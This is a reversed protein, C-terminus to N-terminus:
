GVPQSRRTTFRVVLASIVAIAAATGAAVAAPISELGEGGSRAIAIWALGWAMAGAVALRGRGVIAVFVAVAAVVALVIVAWVDAGLDFPDIDDYALAAATNAVTAVSVWGLYVFMTGDVVVAEIRSAPLDRTFILFVRVLVVLLAVIVVVSLWVQDIQIASIWAANLLLSAVIWWGAARQRADTHNAPLAQWVALALLGVYILSWISFAPGGPAVATADASLAGGAAEAVPTGGAAGSGFFSVVVAVVASAAVAVVRVLDAGTRAGPSTSSTSVSGHTSSTM